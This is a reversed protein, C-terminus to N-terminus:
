YSFQVSYEDAIINDHNINDIVDIHHYKMEVKIKKIM